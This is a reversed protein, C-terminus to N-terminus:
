PKETAKENEASEADKITKRILNRMIRNRNAGGVLSKADEYLDPDNILAGLTGKGRNIKDLISDLKEISAKLKIDDLERNLKASLASMHRATDSLGQFFIESRRKSEFTKLMKDLSDSISQLSILLRESNSLFETLNKGPARAFESGEPIPANQIPGATLSVFKDGLVGQTAVSATTGERLWATYDTGVALSVVVNQTKPDFEVSDVTGVRIGNLVVKAGSILGDVEEFRAFYKHQKAFFGEIGGLMLISLMTLTTGLIVFIGVKLENSQQNKRKTQM